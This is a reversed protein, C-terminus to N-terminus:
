TGTRNWFTMAIRYAFPPTTHTALKQTAREATALRLHHDLATIVHASARVLLAVPGPPQHVDSFLGDGRPISTCGGPRLAVRRHLLQCLRHANGFVVDLEQAVTTPPRHRGPRSRRVARHGGDHKRPQGFALRRSVPWARRHSGLM